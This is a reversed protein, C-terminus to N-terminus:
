LQKRLRYILIGAILVIYASAITAIATKDETESIDSEVVVFTDFRIHDFFLTGNIYHSPIECYNGDGDKVFVKVNEPIAADYPVSYTIRANSPETGDCVIEFGYVRANRLDEDDTDEGYGNITTRITVGGSGAYSALADSNMSITVGNLDVFTFDSRDISGITDADIIMGSSDLIIVAMDDVVVIDSDSLLKLWGGDIETTFRSVKFSDGLRGEATYWGSFEYGDRTPVGRLKVIEGGKHFEIDGYVSEEIYYIVPFANRMLVGDICAFSWGSINGATAEIAKGSEDVFRIGQFSDGEVTKLTSPFSICKLPTDAFAKTGISRVRDGLDIYEVATGYFAYGRISVVSNPLGINKLAPSGYFLEESVFEITTHNLTVDTLSPCGAFARKGIFTITGPLHMNTIGTNEFASNEIKVVSRSFAIDTFSTCGMFAGERIETIKSPLAISKLSTCGMFTEKGLTELSEPLSISELSTCNAFTMSYMMNRLVPGLEMKSLSTCNLFASDRISVLGTCGLVEKLSRCDNFAGSNITEVNAPVTISELGICGKFTASSISDIGSPLRVAKLSGCGEFAHDDIETISDPLHINVLNLCKNFALAGISTMSDPLDMNRLYTNSIFAGDDIATVRYTSGGITVTGPITISERTMERDSLESVAVTEPSTIRYYIMIADPDDPLHDGSHNSDDADSSDSATMGFAITISLLAAFAILKISKMNNLM